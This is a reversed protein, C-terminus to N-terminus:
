PPTSTSLEACSLDKADANPPVGPPRWKEALKQALLCNGLTSWHGGPTAMSQGRTQFAEKLFPILDIVNPDAKKIETRLWTLQKSVSQSRTKQNLWSPGTILVLSYTKNTQEFFTQMRNLIALHVDLTDQWTFEKPIGDFKQKLWNAVYSYRILFPQTIEQPVPTNGIQLRGDELYFIPKPHVFLNTLDRSLDFPLGIVVMVHDLNAVSSENELLLAMQGVGFGHIGYNYTKSHDQWRELFAPLTADDGVEDGFVFSDGFLGLQHRPNASAKAPSSHVRLGNEDITVRISDESNTKFNSQNRWGYLSHYKDWHYSLGGDSETTWPVVGSLESVDDHVIRLYTELIAWQLCILGSTFILSFAIKKQLSLM